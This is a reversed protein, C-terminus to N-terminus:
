RWVNIQSSPLASHSALGDGFESPRTPAGPKMTEIRLPVDAAPLMAMTISTKVEQFATAADEVSDGIVLIGCISVCSPGRTKNDNTFVVDRHERTQSEATKPKRQIVPSLRTSCLNTLM